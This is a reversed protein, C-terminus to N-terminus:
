GSVTVRRLLSVPPGEKSEPESVLVVSPSVPTGSCEPTRDSRGPRPAWAARIRPAREPRGPCPRRALGGWWLGARGPVRAVGAASAVPRSVRGAALVRHRGPQTEVLQQALQQVPRVLDHGGVRLQAAQEVRHDDDGAVQVQVDGQAADGFRCTVEGVGAVPGEPDDAGVPLEGVEDVDAEVVVVGLADPLKRRPRPTRPSSMSSGFGSRSRSM